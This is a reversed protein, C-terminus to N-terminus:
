CIYGHRIIEASIVGSAADYKVMANRCVDEPSLEKLIHWAKEEGSSM